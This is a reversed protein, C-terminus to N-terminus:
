ARRSTLHVRCIPWAGSIEYLCQLARSTSRSTLPAAPMKLAFSTSFSTSSAVTLSGLNERYAPGPTLNFLVGAARDTGHACSQKASGLLKALLVFPGANKTKLIEKDEFNVDNFKHNPNDLINERTFKAISDYFNKNDEM